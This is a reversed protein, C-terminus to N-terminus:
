GNNLPDRGEDLDIYSFFTQIDDRHQFGGEAKRSALRPSMEDNWGRKRLFENWIEIEEEDPRRGHAFCWELVEEDTGGALTREVIAHYPVKLFSVCRSDFGEGLNAKYDDPLAGKAHLRIKDLMRGFYVLGGVRDSPSRLDPVNMTGM